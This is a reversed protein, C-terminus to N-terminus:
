HVFYDLIEFADNYPTSNKPMYMIQIFRSKGNQTKHFPPIFDFVSLSMNKAIYCQSKCIMGETTNYYKLCRVLYTKM